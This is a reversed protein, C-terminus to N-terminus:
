EMAKQALTYHARSRPRRNRASLETALCSTVHQWEGQDKNTVPIIRGGNVVVLTGGLDYSQIQTSVITLLEVFTRAIM